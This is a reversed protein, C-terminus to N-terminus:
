ITHLLVASYSFVRQTCRYTGSYGDGRFLFFIVQAMDAIEEALIMHDAHQIHSFCVLWMLGGMALAVASKNVRVIHEFVIAIYGFLFLACLQFKLM